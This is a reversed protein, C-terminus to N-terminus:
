LQSDYDLGKFETHWGWKKENLTQHSYGHLAVDITRTKIAQKAMKIKALPLSMSEQPKTDLYDESKVYPIVGITFGITFGLNQRKFADIVLGELETDSIASFDDFRFVVTIKEDEIAAYGEGGLLTFCMFSIVLMLKNFM